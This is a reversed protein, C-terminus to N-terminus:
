RHIGPFKDNKINWYNWIPFFAKLIFSLHIDIKILSCLNIKMYLMLFDYHKSIKFMKPSFNTGFSKLRFILNTFRIIYLKLIYFLYVILILVDTNYQSELFWIQVFRSTELNIICVYTIYCCMSITSLVLVLIQYKLLSQNDNQIRSSLQWLLMVIHCTGSCYILM